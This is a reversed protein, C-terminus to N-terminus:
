PEHPPCPRCRSYVRSGSLRVRDRYGPHVADNEDNFVELTAVPALIANEIIPVHLDEVELMSPRYFTGSAPPGDSSPDV